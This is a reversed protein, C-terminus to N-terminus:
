HDAARELRDMIALGLGRTPVRQCYINRIKKRDCVRFFHFFTKAYESLSSCVRVLRFGGGPAELGIYAASKVPHINVPSEIIQITAKPAYHRYKLGPSKPPVVGGHRALRVGPFIERIEELTIAGTRLVVPVKRTCDVVTSELGVKSPGGKLICHIRGELDDRVAQWTTPSPRGSRNASPAAVPTSCARLFQETIPHRPMRVAVTRLGATVLPSVNKHKPFIITLPGPFFAGILKEASRPINKVLRSLEDISTIHVILPNDFPRGKATFIKKIAKENFVDAGLGYVTETPFAVVGGEAIYEAARRPSDTILTKMLNEETNLICIQTRLRFISIFAEERLPYSIPISLDERSSVGVTKDPVKQM